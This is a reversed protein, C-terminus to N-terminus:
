CRHADIPMSTTKKRSALRRAHVALMQMLMRLTNTPTDQPSPGCPVQARSAIGQCYGWQRPERLPDLADIERLLRSIATQLRLADATAHRAAAEYQGALMAFHALASDMTRQDLNGRRDCPFETASRCGTVQELQARYWDREVGPRGESVWAQRALDHLYALQRRSAVSHRRPKPATATASDGSRRPITGATM